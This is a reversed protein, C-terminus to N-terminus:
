FYIWTINKGETFISRFPLLLPYYWGSNDKEWIWYDILTNQQESKSVAVKGGVIVLFLILLGQLLSSFVESKLAQLDWLHFNIYSSWPARPM